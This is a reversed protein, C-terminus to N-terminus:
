IDKLFKTLARSTPKRTCGANDSYLQSLVGRCSDSEASLQSLVSSLLGYRDQKKTDLFDFYFCTMTALGTARMAEVDQVIANYSHCRALSDFVACLLTSKGSGALPDFSMLSISTHIPIQTFYTKRTDLISGWDSEMRHVARSFGPLPELTIHMTTSPDPPALWHQIDRQLQEGVLAM